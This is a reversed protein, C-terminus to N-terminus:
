DDGQEKYRAAAAAFEPAANNIFAFRRAIDAPVLGLGSLRRALAGTNAQEAPGYCAYCDRGFRPCLAGCGTLTVPGMCPAGKSVMVCSLQQRKCEMCVKDHDKLPTVGYLLSRLAALVQRGNVPCGWLELDVRIYSAISTAQDLSNIYEPRAYLEAIWARGNALNRLAQLGGSTACAGISIVFRSNRRIDHIREIEDATSVSGEVFAIDVEAGPDIPGAEPFHVLEVLEDLELLGEGLNLFALQCGDCSTFKHVAVRPRAKLQGSAAATM